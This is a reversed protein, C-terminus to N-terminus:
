LTYFSIAQLKQFFQEQCYITNKFNEVPTKLDSM